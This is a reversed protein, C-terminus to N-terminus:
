KNQSGEIGLKRLAEAQDENLRAKKPMSQAEFTNIINCLMRMPNEKPLGDTETYFEKIEEPSFLKQRNGQLALTKLHKRVSDENDLLEEQYSFTELEDIFPQSKMEAKYGEEKEEVIRLSELRSLESKVEERREEDKELGWISEIEELTRTQDLITLYYLNVWNDERFEM